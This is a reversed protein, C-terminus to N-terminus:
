TLQTMDKANKSREIASGGAKTGGPLTFSATATGNVVPGSTVVIDGGDGSVTGFLSTDHGTLSVQQPVGSVLM